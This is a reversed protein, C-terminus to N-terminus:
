ALDSSDSAAPTGVAANIQEMSLAKADNLLRKLENASISGPQLYVAVHHRLIMVTPVSRVNFEEALDPQEGVNVQAFVAEDFEHALSEFHTSFAQCPECWDATFDIVVLDSPGVIADFNDKTLQKVSM